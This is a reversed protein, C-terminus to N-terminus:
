HKDSESEMRLVRDTEEWIEYGRKERWRKMSISEAVIFANFSEDCRSIADDEAEDIEKPDDSTFFYTHDNKSRPIAMEYGYEDEGYEIDRDYTEIVCWFKKATTEDM